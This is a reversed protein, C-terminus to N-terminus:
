LHQLIYENDCFSRNSLAILSNLEKLRTEGRDTGTEAVAVSYCHKLIKINWM